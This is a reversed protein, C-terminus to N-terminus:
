PDIGIILKNYGANVTNLLKEYDALFENPNQIPLGIDVVYYYTRM